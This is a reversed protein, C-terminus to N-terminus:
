DLAVADGAGRLELLREEIVHVSEAALEHGLKQGCAGRGRPVVHGFLPFAVRPVVGLLDDREEPLDGRELAGVVPVLVM